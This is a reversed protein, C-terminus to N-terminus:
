EYAQVNHRQIVCLSMKVKIKSKIKFLIHSLLKSPSAWHRAALVATVTCDTLTYNNDRQKETQVTSSTGHQLVWLAFALHKALVAGTYLRTNTCVPVHV